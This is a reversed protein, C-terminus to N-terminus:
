GRADNVVLTLGDVDLKEIRVTSQPALSEPGRAHWREGRVHVFGAGDNWELVRAEAGALEEAGTVVPRRMAALAYGIIAVILVASAIAASGITWWSLQFEPADSDVLIAAGFIFAIMGGAGLAGFAPTFAEAAMLGLGLLILALGTYDLPLENLAYLGLLLCIAGLVGPGISGPNSLEFIIGYVGILMLIFAVNPNSILALVEILFGPEVHEVRAGATALTKTGAATVAERGDMQALLDDLDRAVIEVVGDELAKRAGLSAGERVAEEAWEANRGHTEALSVILAVADNTAKKSLAEENSPAPKEGGEKQPEGGPAGPMGGMTVPTAAGINTGPAMAAVGAAYVIYTGASAAHGGPPWVYAAVPVNSALLSSVIDRTSSVLGGPTDIRLVLVDAEREEAAAVADAIQKATAPGIAGTVTSVIALPTEGGGDGADQGALPLAAGCIALLTFLFLRLRLPM